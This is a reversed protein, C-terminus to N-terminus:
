RAPARHRQRLLRPTSRPPIGLQERIVNERAVSTSRPIVVAHLGHRIPVVRYDLEPEAPLSESV